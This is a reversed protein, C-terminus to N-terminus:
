VWGAATGIKAAGSPLAELPLPGSAALIQCTFLQYRMFIHFQTALFMSSSKQM